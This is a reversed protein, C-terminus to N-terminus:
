GPPTGGQFGELQCGFLESTFGGYFVKPFLQPFHYREYAWFYIQHNTSPNESNTKVM